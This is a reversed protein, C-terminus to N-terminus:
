SWRVVTDGVRTSSGRLTETDPEVITVRVRHGAVGDPSKSGHSGRGLRHGKYVVVVLMGQEGLLRVGNDFLGCELGPSGGLIKLRRVISGSVEDLDLEFWSDTCPRRYVIQRVPLWWSYSM